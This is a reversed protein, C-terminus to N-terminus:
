YEMVPLYIYPLIKKHFYFLSVSSPEMKSSILMELETSIPYKFTLAGIIKILNYFRTRDDIEYLSDYIIAIVCM